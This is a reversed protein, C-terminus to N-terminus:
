QEGKKRRGKTAEAASTGGADRLCTKLDYLALGVRSGKKGTAIVTLGDSGLERSLFVHGAGTDVALQTFPQSGMEAARAEALRILEHAQKIATKQAEEGMNSALVEDRSFIVAKDIDTSIDMMEGFAAQVEEKVRVEERVPDFRLLV